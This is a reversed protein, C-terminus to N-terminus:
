QEPEITVIVRQGLKRLVGMLYSESFRHFKANLLQTTEVATAGLLEQIKSPETPGQRGLIRLICAGLEIRLILADTNKLGLSYFVTNDQSGFEIKTTKDNM